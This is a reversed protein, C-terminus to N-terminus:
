RVRSPPDSAIMQRVLQIFAECHAEPTFRAAFAPGARGLRKRLAPSEILRTLAGTLAPPDERPVLLGNEGDAVSDHCGLADSAIVPLGIAAAEVNVRGFGEWKTSLVFIDSRRMMPFPDDIRGTWEIREGIGEAAALSKLRDADRGGGVITVHWNPLDAKTRRLEGLAKLLTTTDKHEEDLRTVSILRVVGEGSPSRGPEPIHMGFPLQVFSARMVPLKEVGAELMGRSLVAARYRNRRMLRYFVRHSLRIPGTNMAHLSEILPLGIGGLGAWELGNVGLVHRNVTTNPPFTGTFLRIAHPQHCAVASRIGSRTLREPRELTVGAEALAPEHRRIGGGDRTHIAVRHGLRRLGIATDRLSLTMGGAGLRKALFM